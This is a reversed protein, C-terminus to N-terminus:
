INIVCNMLSNLTLMILIILKLNEYSGEIEITYQVQDTINLM